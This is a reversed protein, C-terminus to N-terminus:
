ARRRRTSALGALALLTASAPSPVANWSLNDAYTNPTFGYGLIRIEDFKHGNATTVDFWTDGVGGYPADGFYSAVEVGNQMVFVGMGGGFFSAPGSNDWFQASFETLDSDFNIFIGFPGSASNGSGLGWGGVATDWDGVDVNGTGSVISSIGLSSWADASVGGTPGSPEDFNLTTSYTPAPAGTRTVTVQALASGAVSAVALCAIAPVHTNM